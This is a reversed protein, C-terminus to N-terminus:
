EFPFNLLFFYLAKLAHDWRIVRKYKTSVSQLLALANSTYHAVSTIQARVLEKIKGDTARISFGDMCTTDDTLATSIWTEANSMHCTFDQGTARGLSSSGLEIWTIKLRFWVIRLLRKNNPYLVKSSTSAICSPKLQYLGTWAWRWVSWLWKIRVIKSPRRM